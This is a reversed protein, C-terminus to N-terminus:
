RSTLWSSLTRMQSDSCRYKMMDTGSIIGYGMTSVRQALALAFLFKPNSPEAKAALEFFKLAEEIDGSEKLANGASFSLDGRKPRMRAAQIRENLELQLTTVFSNM